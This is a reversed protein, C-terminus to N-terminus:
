QYLYKLINKRSCSKLYINVLNVNDSVANCIINKEKYGLLRLGIYTIKYNISNIRKIRKM